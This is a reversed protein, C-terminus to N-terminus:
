FYTDIGELFLDWQKEVMEKAIFASLGTVRNLPVLLWGLADWPGLSVLFGRDPHAYLRPWRGQHVRKINEAVQKGKRVAAQASLTNLGSGDFRVCDGAAFVNWLLRDAVKLRGYRNARLAEPYPEVGPFLLTLSSTLRYKGSNDQVEIAGDHAGLYRTGPLYEIGAGALRQRLHRDFGEPLQPLLRTRGDILRLRDDYGLESLLGHLEFLFQLGSPGAGVVNIGRRQFRTRELYRALVDQGEQRLFDCQDYVDSGKPMARPRSGTAIVAYDFDLVGTPLRIRRQAQWQLLQESDIPLAWRHHTFAFREALDALAVRCEVWPRRLTQQLHTLKCHFPSPDILHLEVDVASQRLSILVAMGAYGGGVIVVRM